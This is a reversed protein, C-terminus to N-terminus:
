ANQGGDVTLSEGNIFSANPGALFAVAEAIENVEGFRGVSTLKKLTEAM